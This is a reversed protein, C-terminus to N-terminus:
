LTKEGSPLFRHQMIEDYYASVAAGSALKRLGKNSGAEDMGEKGLETSSVGYYAAPQHLKVFSYALNWHGGPKDYRDVILMTAESESLLIDAFAMGTAGGGVILYDAELM